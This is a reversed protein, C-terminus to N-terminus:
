SLTLVDGSPQTPSQSASLLLRRSSDIARHLHFWNQHEPDCEIAWHFVFDVSFCFSEVAALLRSPKYTVKNGYQGFRYSILFYTPKKRKLFKM